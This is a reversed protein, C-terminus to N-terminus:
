QQHKQKGWFRGGFKGSVAYVPARVPGAAFPVFMEGGGPCVASRFGLWGFPLSVRSESLESNPKSLPFSGCM